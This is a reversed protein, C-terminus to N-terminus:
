GARAARRAHERLYGDITDLHARMAGRAREPDRDRIAALIAQHEPIARSRRYAAPAFPYRAAILALNIRRVLQVLAANGTTEILGLHFAAEAEGYAPEAHRRDRSRAAAALAAFRGELMALQQDGAREAALGVAQVEVIRRCELYQALLEVAAPGELAAVLVYEDFLDWEERANVTTVSGHRVTVLGREELARLCERAVGRSIGFREALAVERPLVDGAALRGSVIDGVYEVM